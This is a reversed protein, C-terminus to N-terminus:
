VLCFIESFVNNLLQGTNCKAMEKLTKILVVQLIHEIPQGNVLTNDDDKELSSTCLETPYIM